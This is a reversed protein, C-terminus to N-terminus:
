LPVAIPHLLDQSLISQGNVSRLDLRNNVVKAGKKPMKRLRNLMKKPREKPMKIKHLLLLLIILLKYSPM